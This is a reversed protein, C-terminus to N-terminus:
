NKKRGARNGALLQRVLPIMGALFTEAAPAPKYDRRTAVGLARKFNPDPISVVATGPHAVVPYALRPLLTIGCGAEVLGGLTFHNSVESVPDINLRHKKFFRDIEDRVNTGRCMLLLPYKVIERVNSCGSKILPHGKPAVIVYPDDAVFQFRLESKSSPKPGFYFDLQRNEVQAALQAAPEDSFVIRVGPYKRSFTGIIEPVIYCALTPTAGVRVEGVELAAVKAFDLLLSDLDHLIGEVKGRLAEGESTLTVSRTQRHFLAVGLTKELIRIQDTIAPQSRGVTKATKDFSGTQALVVFSRLRSLTISM